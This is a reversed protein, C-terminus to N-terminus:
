SRSIPPFRLLGETRTYCHAGKVAFDVMWRKITELDSLEGHAHVFGYIKPGADEELRRVWGGNCDACILNEVYGNLRFDPEVSDDPLGDEGIRHYDAPLHRRLEATDITRSRM